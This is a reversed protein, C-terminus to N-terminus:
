TTTKLFIVPMKKTLVGGFFGDRNRHIKKNTDAPCLMMQTSARLMMQGFTLMMGGCASVFSRHQVEHLHHAECHHPSAGM